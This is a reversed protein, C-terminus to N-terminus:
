EKKTPFNLKTSKHSLKLGDIIGAGIAIINKLAGGLETGIVDTGSYIRFSDSSFFDRFDNSKNIDRFAITSVAPKGESIESALNPGSLAGITNISSKTLYSNIVESMREGKVSIGKTASIIMKDPTVYERIKMLNENLTHSPVAIIITNSEQITKQINSEIEITRPLKMKNSLNKHIRSKDLIKKEEESRTLISINSVKNSILFTLTFGWTTNGIVTIKKM